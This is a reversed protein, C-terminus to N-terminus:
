TKSITLIRCQSNMKIQSMSTVGRPISVGYLNGKDISYRAEKQAITTLTKFEPRMEFVWSIWLWPLLKDTLSTPITHKLYRIWIREQPQLATNLGYRQSLLAIQILTRFDVRKPVTGTRRQRVNMIVSFAYPDDNPSFIHYLM